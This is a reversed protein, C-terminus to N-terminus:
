CLSYVLCVFEGKENKRELKAYLSQRYGMEAIESAIEKSLKYGYTEVCAIIDEITLSIDKEGPYIEIGFAQSFREPQWSATQILGFTLYAVSILDESNLNSKEIVTLHDSKPTSFDKDSSACIENNGM